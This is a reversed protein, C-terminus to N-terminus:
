NETKNGDMVGRAKLEAETDRIITILKKLYKDKNKQSKQKLVLRENADEDTIMGSWYDCLVQMNKLDRKTLRM